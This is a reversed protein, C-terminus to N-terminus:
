KEKFEIDLLIRAAANGTILISLGDFEADPENFKDDTINSTKNIIKNAEERYNIREKM